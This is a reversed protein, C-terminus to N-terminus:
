PKVTGLKKINIEELIKESVKPYNIALNETAYKARKKKLPDNGKIIVNEIFSDIENQNFAIYYNELCSKGLSSFITKYNKKAAYCCPKKTYLYEVVFSSCDHIMGDSNAFLEFYDGGYSYEIGLNQLKKLYDNVQIETWIGDNTLNTFLLPHPRFVFDIQPYKKPLELLYDSYKLFNSLPFHTNNITHHPAVIIRNRNHEKIQVKSLEDMKSYGTLVVNKARALEFKKYDEYSFQNDAFVKWFLSIELIPMIVKCGYNDPMCGYSIYIPLVEKTSLYKIGHITNVMSDYPNALYIIDFSDSYDYFKDAKEDWGDLVIDKGYKNIFFAKTKNYQDKLHTIGRSTDPIVVIKCEYKDKQSLMLDMLGYAGFTSDFVVYSAFRLPRDGSNKIREAVDHYHEYTANILQRNKLASYKRHVFFRFSYYENLVFEPCLKKILTRLM